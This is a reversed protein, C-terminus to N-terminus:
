NVGRVKLFCVENVDAMGMVKEVRVRNNSKVRHFYSRSCSRSDTTDVVALEKDQNQNHTMRTQPDSTNLASLGVSSGTTDHPTFGGGSRIQSMYSTLDPM